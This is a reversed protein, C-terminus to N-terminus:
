ASRATSKGGEQSEYYSEKSKMGYITEENKVNKHEKTWNERKRIM